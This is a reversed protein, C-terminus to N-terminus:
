YERRLYKRDAISNERCELELQGRIMKLIIILGAAIETCQGYYQKNREMASQLSTIANNVYRWIDEPREYETAFDMDPFAEILYDFMPLEAMIAKMSERIAILEKHIALYKDSM